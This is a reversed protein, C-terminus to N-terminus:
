FGQPIITVCFRTLNSNTGSKSNTGSLTWCHFLALSPNQYKEGPIFKTDSTVAKGNVLVQEAQFFNCGHIANGHPVDWTFLRPKAYRELELLGEGPYVVLRERIERFGPHIIVLEYSGPKFKKEATIERNGLTLQQPKFKEGPIM